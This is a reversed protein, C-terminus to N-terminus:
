NLGKERNLLKSLVSEDGGIAEFVMWYELRRRIWSLDRRQAEFTSLIYHTNLSHESINKQESPYVVLTEFETSSVRSYCPNSSCLDVYVHIKKLLYLM